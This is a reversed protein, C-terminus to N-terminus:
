CYMWALLRVDHVALCPSGDMSETRKTRACAHMTRSIGHAKPERVLGFRYMTRGRSYHRSRCIRHPHVSGDFGSNGLTNSIWNGSPRLQQMVFSFLKWETKRCSYLAQRDETSSPSHPVPTVKIRISRMIKQEPILCFGETSIPQTSLRGPGM